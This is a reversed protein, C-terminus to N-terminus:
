ASCFGCTAPCLVKMRDKNAACAHHKKLFKCDFSSSEIDTCEKCGEKFYGKAITKGDDCCGFTTDKCHITSKHCIHCSKPCSFKMVHFNSICMGDRSLSLCSDVMTPDDRCIKHPGCRGCTKPCLTRAQTGALSWSNTCDTKFKQCFPTSYYDVCPKCGDDATGVHNKAIAGDWCCGYTSRVCPPEAAARGCFACTKPCFIRLRDQYDPKACLGIKKYEGCKKSFISQDDDCCFRCSRACDKEMEKPKVHCENAFAKKYCYGLGKADICKKQDEKVKKYLGPVGLKSSDIEKASNEHFHAKASADEQPADAKLHILSKVATDFDAYKAQEEIEELIETVTEKKDKKADAVKSVVSDKPKLKADIEEKKKVLFDELKRLTKAYDDTLKKDSLKEIEEEPVKKADEAAHCELTLMLCLLLSLFWVSRM